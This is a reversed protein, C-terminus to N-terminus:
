HVDLWNVRCKWCYKEKNNKRDLHVELKTGCTPCLSVPSQRMRKEDKRKAEYRAALTELQGLGLKELRERLKWPHGAYQPLMAKVADDVLKKRRRRERRKETRAMAAAEREQLEQRKAEWERTEAERMADELSQLDEKPKAEAVIKPPPMKEFEGQLTSVYGWREEDPDTSVVLRQGDSVHKFYTDLPLYPNM